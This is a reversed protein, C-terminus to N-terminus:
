SVAYTTQYQVLDNMYELSTSCTEITAVRSVIRM